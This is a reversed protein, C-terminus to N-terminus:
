SRKVAQLAMMGDMFNYANTLGVIWLFTIPLGLLSLHLSGVPPVALNEWYGFAWIALTILPTRWAIWWV